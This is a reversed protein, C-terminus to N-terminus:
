PTMAPITITYAGDRVGFVSNPGINTLNFAGFVVAVIAIALASLIVYEVLVQASKM